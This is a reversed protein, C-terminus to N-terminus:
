STAVTITAPRAGGGVEGERKVALTPPLKILVAGDPSVRITQNGFKKGSEGDAEIRRRAGTWDRRWENEAQPNELHHRQRLRNRGGLTVHVSGAEFDQKVRERRARLIQLRRQKAARQAQSTYSPVGAESSGVSIDLRCTASIM